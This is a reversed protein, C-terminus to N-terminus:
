EDSVRGQLEAAAREVRLKYDVLEYLSERYGSWAKEAREREADLLRTLREIERDKARSVAQKGTRPEAACGVDGRGQDRQEGTPAAGSESAGAREGM